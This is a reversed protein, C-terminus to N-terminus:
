RGYTHTHTERHTHTHTLFLHHSLVHLFSTHIHTSSRPTNNSFPSFTLTRSDRYRTTCSYRHTAFLCLFCLLSARHCFSLIHKCTVTLSLSHKPRHTQLLMQIHTHTHSHPCVWVRNLDVKSAQLRPQTEWGPVYWRSHQSDLMELVYSGM